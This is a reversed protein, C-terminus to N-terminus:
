DRKLLSKVWEQYKQASGLSGRPKQLFRKYDEAVIVRNKAAHEPIYTDIPSCYCGAPVQGMQKIMEKTEADFSFFYDPM